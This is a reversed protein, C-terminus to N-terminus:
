RIKTHRESPQSISRQKDCLPDQIDFTKFINSVSLRNRPVISEYLTLTGMADSFIGKTGQFRALLTYVEKKMFHWKAFRLQFRKPQVDSNGGSSSLSVGSGQLKRHIEECVEKCSKMPLLLIELLGRVEDDKGVILIVDDSKLAAQLNIVLSKFASIDRDLIMIERPADKMTTFLEHLASSAKLSAEAIAIVASVTGLVETVGSM